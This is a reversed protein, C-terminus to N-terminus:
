VIRTEWPAKDIEYPSIGKSEIIEKVTRYATCILYKGNEIKSGVKWPHQRRLKHYLEKPVEYHRYTNVENIM